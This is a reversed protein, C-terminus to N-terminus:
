LQFKVLTLLQFKVVLESKNTKGFTVPSKGVSLHIVTTCVMYNVM